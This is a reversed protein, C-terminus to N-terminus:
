KKTVMKRERAVRADRLKKLAPSLRSGFFPIDGTINPFESPVLDPTVTKGTLPDWNKLLELDEKSPKGLNIPPTFQNSVTVLNGLEAGKSCLLEIGRTAEKSLEPGFTAQLDLKQKESTM